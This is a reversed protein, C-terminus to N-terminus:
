EQFDEPDNSFYTIYVLGHMMQLQERVPSLPSSYSIYGDNLNILLERIDGPFM